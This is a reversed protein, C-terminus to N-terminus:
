VTMFILRPAGRGTLSPATAAWTSTSAGEETSKFRENINGETDVWGRALIEAETMHRRLSAMIGGPHVTFAESGRNRFQQQVGLAMLANATKAQGYAAWPDYDRREFGVDDFHVNCNLDM